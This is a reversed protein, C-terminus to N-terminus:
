EGEADKDIVDKESFFIICLKHFTQLNPSLLLHMYIHPKRPQEQIAASAQDQSNLYLFIHDLEAM